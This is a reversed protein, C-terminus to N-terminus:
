RGAGQLFFSAVKEVQDRLDLKASGYRERMFMARIMGMLFAPCLQELDPRLVKQRYGVQILQEIRGYMESMTKQKSSAGSGDRDAHEAQLLILIFNRHAEFHEFLARLLGELQVRFPQKALEARSKDIRELLESRRQELLAGLLADKDKFHNYLTGVAVGAREALQNMSAGHLGQEAFVQEAAALMAQATEERFRDKLRHTIRADPSNKNM